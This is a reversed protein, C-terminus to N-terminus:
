PNPRVNGTIEIDRLYLDWVLKNQFEGRVIQLSVLNHVEVNVGRIRDGKIAWLGPHRPVEQAFGYIVQSWAFKDFPTRKHIGAVEETWQPVDTM